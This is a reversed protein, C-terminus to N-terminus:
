NQDLKFSGRPKLLVLQTFSVQNREDAVTHPPAETQGIPFRVEFNLLLVMLILKIQASAWFRGPCAFKGVGWWPLTSNVSAFQHKDGDGDNQRLNYFRLGNFEYPNPFYEPDFQMEAHCMSIYTSAPLTVGNSLKVPKALHRNFTLFGLTNMRHAEKIFSDTKKLSSLTALSIGNHDEVAQVMEERLMSIYEPRACLELLVNTATEASTHIAAMNLFLMRMVLRDTELDRGKASEVLWQAMDPHERSTSQNRAAFIPVLLQKALAFRSRIQHFSKLFPAVIPYFVRPYTRLDETVKAVDMTYGTATSLWEPNRCLEPGVFVRATGSTVLEILSFFAPISYYGTYRGGHRISATLQVQSRPLPMFDKMFKASLVVRDMDTTWLSYLGYKYKSYGEALLEKSHKYFYGKSTNGLLGPKPGVRPIDLKRPRLLVYHSLLAAILAIPALWLSIM